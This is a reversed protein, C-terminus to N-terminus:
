KVGVAVQNGLNIMDDFVIDVAEGGRHVVQALRLNPPFELAGDIFYSLANPRVVLYGNRLVESVPDLKKEWQVKGRVGRIGVERQDNVLDVVVCIGGPGTQRKFHGVVVCPKDDLRLTGPQLRLVLITKYFM